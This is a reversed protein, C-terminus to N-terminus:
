ERNKRWEWPKLMEVLQDEIKSDEVPPHVRHIGELHMIVEPVTLQRGAEESASRVFLAHQTRHCMAAEEKQSLAPAVDVVLHAVDDQNSLRPKPHGPFSAAVTYLLPATKKFSLAAILTAQHTFTHAPHGYEGNSGHTVVVQPQFQKITAAVQGALMTLNDTYAYLKEGPGVRPDAYGLFTLSRGGLAQVACVMEKERVPGLEEPACVPPEGVEGGEGRTACLYHVQAGSRALLALTGGALMTEDDPHAFFALVNM